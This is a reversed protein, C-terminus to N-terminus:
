KESEAEYLGPFIQDKLPDFDFGKEYIHVLRESLHNDGLINSLQYKLILDRHQDLTLDEIVAPAQWSEVEGNEGTDVLKGGKWPFNCGYNAKAFIVYREYPQTGPKIEDPKARRVGLKQIVVNGIPVTFLPEIFSLDLPRWIDENKFINYLRIRATGKPMMQAVTFLDDRLKLIFVANEQWFARM